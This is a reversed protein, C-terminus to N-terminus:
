TVSFYPSPRTALDDRVPRDLGLLGDLIRGTHQAVWEADPLLDGLRHRRRHHALVHRKGLEEVALMAVSLLLKSGRYSDVGVDLRHHVGGFIQFAELPLPPYLAPTIMDLAGSISMMGIMRRSCSPAIM